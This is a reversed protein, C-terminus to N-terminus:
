SRIPNLQSMLHVYVKKSLTKIDRGRDHQTGLLAAIGVGSFILFIIPFIWWFRKLFPTRVQKAESKVDETKDASTGTEEEM